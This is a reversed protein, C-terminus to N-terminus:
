GPGPFETADGIWMVRQELATSQLANVLRQDATVMRADLQCALALYLSDYVSRGHQLAISFAHEVVADTAHITLPVRKLTGLIDMAVPSTIEGRLTKKWLVNGVEPFLLDPAHLDYREDLLTSAPQWLTEPIFWKVCVSADVVLSTM